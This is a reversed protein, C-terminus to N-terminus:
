SLHFAELGDVRPQEEHHLRPGEDLGSTEGGNARLRPLIYEGAVM